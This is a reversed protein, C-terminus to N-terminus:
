VITPRRLPQPRRWFMGQKKLRVFRDTTDTYKQLLRDYRGRWFVNEDRFVLHLTDHGSEGNALMEKKTHGNVSHSGRGATVSDGDM